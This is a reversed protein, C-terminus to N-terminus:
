CVSLYRRVSEGMSIEGKLAREQFLMSWHFLQSRATRLEILVLKVLPGGNELYGTTYFDEEAQKLDYTCRKIKATWQGKSFTLQAYSPRTDLDFPLGASGANVVLTKDLRRVLPQHTHGVGFLALHNTSSPKGIWEKREHPPYPEQAFVRPRLTEDSMELHIGARMGRMSAHVFTVLSGAPDVLNLQFPMEKIISFINHNGSQGLTSMSSEQNNSASALYLQRMTWWSARHVENSPQDSHPKQSAQDLVYDEHNGRLWFWDGWVIRKQVFDFCEKPRPGRNILDGAIIVLDPRWRDVDDAVTQLATYNAHIDSLLAIKM